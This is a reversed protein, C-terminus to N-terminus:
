HLHSGHMPNLQSQTNSLQHLFSVMDLFANSLGAVWGDDREMVNSTREEYDKM